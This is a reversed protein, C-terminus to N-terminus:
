ERRRERVRQGDGCEDGQVVFERVLIQGHFSLSLLALTPLGAADVHVGIAVVSVVMVVVVMVVVCVVTRPRRKRPAAHTLFGHAPQGRRAHPTAM